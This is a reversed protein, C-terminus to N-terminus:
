EQFPPWVSKRGLTKAADEARKKGVLSREKGQISPVVEWGLGEASSTGKVKETRM